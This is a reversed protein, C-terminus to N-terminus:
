TVKLEKQLKILETNNENMNAKERERDKQQRDINSQNQLVRYRQKWTELESVLRENEELQAELAQAQEHQTEEQEELTM